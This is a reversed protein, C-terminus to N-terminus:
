ASIINVKTWTDEEISYREVSTFLTPSYYQPNTHGRGGFVYVFNAVTGAVLWGREQLMSAVASWENKKPDYVEVSNLYIENGDIGGMVFIKGSNVVSAHRGRAVSMPALEM